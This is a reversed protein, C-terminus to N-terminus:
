PCFDASSVLEVKRRAVAEKVKASIYASTM